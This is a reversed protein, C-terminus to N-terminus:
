LCKGAMCSNSMFLLFNHPKLFIDFYKSFYNEVHKVHVSVFTKYYKAQLMLSSRSERSERLKGHFKLHVLVTCRLHAPVNEDTDCTTDKKVM